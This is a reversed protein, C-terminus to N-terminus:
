KDYNCDEAVRDETGGMQTERMGCPVFMIDIAHQKTGTEVSLLINERKWDICMMGGKERIRKLNSLTADNPKHFQAYDEESCEHMTIETKTKM